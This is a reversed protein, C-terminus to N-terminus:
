LAPGECVGGRLEECELDAWRATRPNLRMCDSGNGGNPEDSNWGAFAGNVPGGSADGLWFLAEDRLWRWSGEENADSGGVWTEESILTVLFANSEVDHIAALDWGAGRSRCRARAHAESLLDPIVLYCDGNPGRRESVGCSRPPDSTGAGADLADAPSRTDGDGPSRFGGDAVTEGLVGGAVIGIPSPQETQTLAPDADLGGAENRQPSGELQSATSPPVVYPHDPVGLVDACAALCCGQLCGLLVQVVRDDFVRRRAM